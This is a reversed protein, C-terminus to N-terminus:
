SASRHIGKRSVPKIDHRAKWDLVADLDYFRGIPLPFDMYRTKWSSVTTVSVGLIRALERRRVRTIM